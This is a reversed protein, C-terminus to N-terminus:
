NPFSPMRNISKKSSNKESLIAVDALLNIYNRIKRHYHELAVIIIIITTTKMSNNKFAKLLRCKILPYRFVFESTFLM